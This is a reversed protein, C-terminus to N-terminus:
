TICDRYTKATSFESWSEVSHFRPASFIKMCMEGISLEIFFM